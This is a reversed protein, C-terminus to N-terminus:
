NCSVMQAKYRGFMDQLKFFIDKIAAKDMAFLNWSYQLQEIPWFFDKIDEEAVKNILTHSLIFTPIREENNSLFGVPLIGNWDRSFGEVIYALGHKDYLQYWVHAFATSNTKDIVWGWVIEGDIDLQALKSFFFFVSDECDGQKCQATEVPTQWYDTKPPEAHYELAFAIERYADYIQEGDDFTSSCWEKYLLSEPLYTKDGANLPFTNIEWTDNVPRYGKGNLFLDAYSIDAFVNTCPSIAIMIFTVLPIFCKM